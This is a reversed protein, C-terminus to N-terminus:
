AELWDIGIHIRDTDYRGPIELNKGRPAGSGVFIADFGQALLWKMSEIPANYRVEINGMNVIQDIEDSLVSLPLRFAPINSRMLGGPVPLKEFITIEYGLPVLDNALALSAPGAGVCAIKKGNKIPPAKPLLHTIDDRLDSAVRKLRCIAVAKE